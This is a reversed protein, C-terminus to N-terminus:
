GGEREEEGGGTRQRTCLVDWGGYQNPEEGLVLLSAASYYYYDLQGEFGTGGGGPAVNWTSREGVMPWFANYHAALWRRLPIQMSDPRIRIRELERGFLHTTGSPRSNKAPPSPDPIPSISRRVKHMTSRDGRTKEKRREKRTIVTCQPLFSLRVYRVYRDGRSLLQQQKSLVVVVM